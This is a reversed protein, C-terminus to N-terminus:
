NQSISWGRGDSLLLYDARSGAPRSCSFKECWGTWIQPCEEAKTADYTILTAYNTQTNYTTGSGGAGLQLGSVGGNPTLGVSASGSGTYNSYTTVSVPVSETLTCGVVKEDRFMPNSSGGSSGGPDYTSGSGGDGSSNVQAIVQANLKSEKINYDKYAFQLNTGVALVLLGIGATKFVRKKMNYNNIHQGRRVGSM